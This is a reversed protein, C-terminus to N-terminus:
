KGALEASSITVKLFECLSEWSSIDAADSVAAVVEAAQEDSPAGDRDALSAFLRKATTTRLSRAFVVSTLLLPLLKRLRGFAADDTSRDGGRGLLELRLVAFVVEPWAVDPVGASLALIWYANVAGTAASHVARGIFREIEEAVTPADVILAALSQTVRCYNTFAAVIEAPVHRVIYTSAGGATAAPVKRTAAKIYEYVIGHLVSGFVEPVVSPRFPPDYLTSAQPNRCLQVIHKKLAPLCVPLCEERPCLPLVGELRRGSDISRQRSAMAVAASSTSVLQGTLRIDAPMAGDAARKPVELGFGVVLPANWKRTKADFM